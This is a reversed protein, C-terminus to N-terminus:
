SGSFAEHGSSKVASGLFIQAVFWAMIKVFVLASVLRKEAKGV